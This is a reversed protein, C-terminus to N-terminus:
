PKFMDLCERYTIREPKPQCDANISLNPVLHQYTYQQDMIHQQSERCAQESQMNITIVVHDVDDQHGTWPGVSLMILLIWPIM